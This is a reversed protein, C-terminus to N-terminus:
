FEEEEVTKGGAHQSLYEEEDGFEAEKDEYEALLRKVDPGHKQKHEEPSEEKKGKKKAANKKPM